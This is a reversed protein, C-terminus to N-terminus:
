KAAKKRNNVETLMVAINRRAIRIKAPNEVPSIAHNLTVKNLDAKEATIKENLEQDSLGKIEKTAM